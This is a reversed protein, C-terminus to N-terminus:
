KYILWLVRGHVGEAYPFNNCAVEDMWPLIQCLMGSSRWRHFNSFLFLFMASIMTCVHQQAWIEVVAFTEALIDFPSSLLSTHSLSLLGSDHYIIVNSHISDLLFVDSGVEHFMDKTARRQGWHHLDLSSEYSKPNHSQTSISGPFHRRIPPLRLFIPSLKQLFFKDWDPLSDQHFKFSLDFSRTSPHAM